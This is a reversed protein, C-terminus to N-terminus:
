LHGSVGPDRHTFAPKELFVVSVMEHGAAEVTKGVAFFEVHLRKTRQRMIIVVHCPRIRVFLGEEDDPLKAQYYFVTRSLCAADCCRNISAQFQARLQRM